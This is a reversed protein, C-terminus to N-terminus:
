GAVRHISSIFVSQDFVCIYMILCVGCVSATLNVRLNGLFWSGDFM